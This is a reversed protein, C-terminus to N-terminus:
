HKMQITQDLGHVPHYIYPTLSEIVGNNDYEVVHDPYNQVLNPLEAGKIANIVNTRLEDYNAGNKVINVKVNFGQSLMM